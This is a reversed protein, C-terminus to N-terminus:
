NRLSCNTDEFAQRRVHARLNRFHYDFPGSPASGSATGAFLNAKKNSKIGYHSPIWYFHVLGTRGGTGIERQTLTFKRKIDFVTPIISADFKVFLLSQLASLSDSFVIFNQLPNDLVLDLALYIAYCKATLISSLPGLSCSRQFDLDPCVVAAGIGAPATKKSGDTFIGLANQSKLFDLVATNPDELQRLSRSWDM